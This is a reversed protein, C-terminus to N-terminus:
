PKFLDDIFKRARGAAAGLARQRAEEARRRRLERLANWGFAYVLGGALGGVHATNDVSISSFGFLLNMGISRLLSDTLGRTWIGIRRENLKVALFVSGICGFIAGSAGISPHVNFRFSAVNGAVGSLLYMWLFNGHGLIGEAVPGINLLSMSNVFLHSISGHFFVPSILRWWEGRAIALNDKKYLDLLRPGARKAMVTYTYVAINLVVLAQTVYPTRHLGSFDFGDQMSPFRLSRSRSRFSPLGRLRFGLRPIRKTSLLATLQSWLPPQSGPQEDESNDDDRRRRRGPPLRPPPPPAIGANEEKISRKVNQRLEKFAPNPQLLKSLVRDVAGEGSPVDRSPLSASLAARGTPAPPM